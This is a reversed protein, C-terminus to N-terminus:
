AIAELEATADDGSSLICERPIPCDWPRCFWGGDSKPGCTEEPATDDGPAPRDTLPHTEVALHRPQYDRTPTSDYPLEGSRLIGVIQMTSSNGEPVAHRM